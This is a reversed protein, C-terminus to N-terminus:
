VSMIQEKILELIQRANLGPKKECIDYVTGALKYEDGLNRIVWDRTEGAKKLRQIKAIMFLSDREAEKRRSDRQEKDAAQKGGAAKGAKQKYRRQQKEYKGM